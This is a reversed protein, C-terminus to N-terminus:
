GIAANTWPSTLSANINGINGADQTAGVPLQDYQTTNKGALNKTFIHDISNAPILRFGTTQRLSQCEKIENNTGDSVRIGVSGGSAGTSQDSALARFLVCNTTSNLDFGLAGFDPSTVTSGPSSNARAICDICINGNNNIYNFGHVVANTTGLSSNLAAECRVFLNNDSGTGTLFGDVTQSGSNALVSCDFFENNDCNTTSGLVFGGFNSNGDVAENKEVLCHKFICLSTTSSLDFARLDTGAINDNVEVNLFSCKLCNSLHVVSLDQTTVGNENIRCDTIKIDRCGQLFLGNNGAAAANASQLIDVNKIISETISALSPAASGLFEIGYVACNLCTIDMIKIRSTDTQVSIGARTFDRVSGNKIIIDTNESAVRIGDVNANANGQSLSFCACDLTVGSADIIIAQTGAGGSYVLNEVFRYGGPQSITLPTTGGAGFDSQQIPQECTALLDLKSNLTECCSELEVEIIDITSAIDRNICWLSQGPTVPGVLAVLLKPSILGCIWFLLFLNRLQKVM